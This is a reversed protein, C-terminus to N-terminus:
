RNEFLSNGPPGVTKQKLFSKCYFFFHDSKYDYLDECQQFINYFCKQKLLLHKITNNFYNRFESNLVITNIDFNLECSDDKFNIPGSANKVFIKQFNVNYYLHGININANHLDERIYKDEYIEDLLGGIILKGKENNPSNFDFLWYYNNTLNNRKLVSLFSSSTRKNSFLNLGLVGTVNDKTYRVLYLYLKEKKIQNKMDIDRYFSFTEYSPCTTEAIPWEDEYEYIYYHERKQCNEINHYTGSNNENFHSFKDSLVYLTKNIYYDPVTKNEHHVSTIIYDNEKIKILLPIKQTPTGIELEALLPSCHERYIIDQPSNPYYLSKINEKNITDVPLVIYNYIYIIIDLFILLLFVNHM